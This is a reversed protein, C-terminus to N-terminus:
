AGQTREVRIWLEADAETRDDSLRTRLLSPGPVSQYPNSPFWQTYVDRWMYQLTKPFEGSSEFVAWTGATVTLTEM